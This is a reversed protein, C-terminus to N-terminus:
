SDKEFDSLLYISNNEGYNIGFQAEIKLKGRLWDSLITMRNNQWRKISYRLSQPKLFCCLDLAVGNDRLLAAVVLPTLNSYEYSKTGRCEILCSLLGGVKAVMCNQIASHTNRVAQELDTVFHTLGLIEITENISGLVYLVTLSLVNDRSDTCRISKMFGLDGTRLYSLGNDADGRLKSKFQGSIFPLKGLQSKNTRAGSQVLRKEAAVVPNINYDYVNGESCSWLEGIEHEFCPQLTEPNVVLVDTCVPVVGSDQLHLYQGSDKMSLFSADVEKIVGERLSVLDLYVDVPPIGLYSRLSILPNFLHQYLHNLQAPNVSVFPYRALSNQIALLSPRGKSPIMINQVKQLFDPRVSSKASRSDKKGSASNNGHSKQISSNARDMIVCFMEASVLLDKVNRNQLAVLLNTADSLVDDFNFFSTTAGVYIGLLCSQIFGLGSTHTYVSIVPNDSTLQLTEKSIKCMNLLVKHTMVVNLERDIDRERDIWIVCAGSSDQNSSGRGKLLTKLGSSSTDGKRKIKSFTTIKPLLHKYRRLIKSISVGDELVAQMKADVFIRKVKYNVVTSLLFDVEEEAHSEILRAIPIVILNSYFCALVIAVYEVSNDCMVIVHDGNKLPNKSQVIKKVFSGVISLFTKWSVKSHLNNPNGTSASTGSIGDNFAFEDGNKRSRWELIELINPFPALDTNSRYDLAKERYDIGSTQWTLQPPSGTAAFAEQSMAEHRLSSLHESFISENVFSSHPIFDLIVNDLQFKVFKSSLLGSLFKKEVTSNAIELSCYRRPLSRPSVLMVCIPQIRHFIWLIKYIQEVVTAMKKERQEKQQATLAIAGTAANSALPCEVAMVLFHEEKNQPLEFVSVETAKDVMRVVNETIHQLYFTQVVRRSTLSDNKTPTQEGGSSEPKKAKTVDSTHSWNPLRVLKNQLFMDEILSLIFIKGNHIFGMLKTRIYSKEPSCIEKIMDLREFSKSADGQADLATWQLIELMKKFNLRANFVFENIKDMQYFEDTISSSSIWLEGITLDPVLTSDDPNVICVTADPIPFGFCSLRLFDKTSSSSNIMATISPKVINEKLQEKDIFLEDQLVLKSDHVPFNELHGLQDKLSIFVGGFDLLTLMPSYCRSADLCGLNKLWKHVIMDTVETDINTCSTLCWKVCGMDIKNKKSTVLTPNELYNIVVQKLQLQDNLLVSVRHKNIINEYLGPQQLLSDDITMLLNGTYINFLVGFILGTSRTPDLSSLITYRSSTRKNKYSRRIDGTNGHTERRSNLINALTELQKSLIKHKIVVGSLRGLPTRTFEIYSVSPIDFTPKNKKAKSYVGLDETVVYTMQSLVGEKTLKVKANDRYELSDIQKLANGSILAVTASTLNVIQIIEGLSYTQLSVPVAVMGAICCGMMAVAFEVLDDKNFWLLVKAMKYLRLKEIEHAVREARLYLRDWSISTEKNKHNICMFATEREYIQSRARLISPLSDSIPASDTRPLLPIMPKYITGAAGNEAAPEPSKFSGGASNLLSSNRTTVRYMSTSPQRSNITPSSDIVYNDKKQTGRSIHSRITSAVSTNRTHGFNGHTTSRASALPSMSLANQDLIEHRKKYYGKATLDGDEFEQILVRLKSKAELPLGDPLSLDM